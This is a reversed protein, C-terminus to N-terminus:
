SGGRRKDSLTASYRKGDNDTVALMLGVPEGNRSESYEVKFTEGVKLARMIGIRRLVQLAPAEIRWNITEGAADKVDFYLQPHPNIMDMQTLTGTFEVYRDVDFQAQAAHHAESQSVALPTLATLGAILGLSIKRM